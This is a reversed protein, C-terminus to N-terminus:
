GLDGQYKEVQVLNTAKAPTICSEFDGGLLTSPSAGVDAGSEHPIYKGGHRIAVLGPMIRTTVYAPMIVKGRDNYVRILDGDEIGRTDADTANIWVRHQYVQGKLWPHDWFLYHVRYRSHPCIMMLPYREVLPDDMGRVSTQYATSPTLDGWDSPLNDYLRGFSDYHKGKGRNTPDAIYTSYLEIKGSRTRFPKNGKIQEHWGTFPGEDLEDCNIFQGQTFGEWSPVGVGRQSYYTAIEQYCEELYREWDHDWNEDTTYYSFFLTPDIGLREALKTYVWAWPRVEGPPKVVGPCYNICEFGGYSSQTINKEEWMWDQAPFIIDAYRVTPTMRSHMTVIFEMREMAEVQDNSADCATVLHDSAHPKSGGGWFLMKPKFDKLLSPDARYGVMRMYDEPSLEGNKMKELLLVAQAWYHSRYM